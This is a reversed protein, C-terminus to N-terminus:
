VPHPPAAGAPILHFLVPSPFRAAQVDRSVRGFFSSTAAVPGIGLAVLTLVALVHGPGWGGHHFIGLATVATILTTVLYVQGLRNKTSIEKDRVLASFGCVLAVVGIAAHFVGLTTLGTMGAEISSDVSVSGGTPAPQCALLRPGCKAGSAVERQSSGLM